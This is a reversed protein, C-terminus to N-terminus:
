VYYFTSQNEKCFRVEKGGRLWRRAQGILDELDDQKLEHKKRIEVIEEPSLLDM